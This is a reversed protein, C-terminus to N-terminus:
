PADKAKGIYSIQREALWADLRKLQEYAVAKRFQKPPKPHKLVSFAHAAHWIAMCRQCTRARVALSKVRGVYYPHDPCRLSEELQRKAATM